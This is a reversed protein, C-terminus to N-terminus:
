SDSRVGRLRRGHVVVPSDGGGDGFIHELKHMLSLLQQSSTIMGMGFKFETAIGFVYETFHRIWKM